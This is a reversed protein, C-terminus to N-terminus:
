KKEEGEPTELSAMPSTFAQFVKLPENIFKTYIRGYVSNPNVEAQFSVYGFLAVVGGVAIMNKTIFKLKKGGKPLTLQSLEKWYKQGDPGQIIM